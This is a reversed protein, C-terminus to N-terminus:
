GIRRDGVRLAALVVDRAAAIARAILEARSYDGLSPGSMKYTSMEDELRNLRSLISSAILNGDLGRSSEIPTSENAGSEDDFKTM